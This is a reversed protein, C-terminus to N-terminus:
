KVVTAKYTPLKKSVTQAIKEPTLKAPDYTVVGKKEQYSVQADKVGDLSKLVHKVATACAGCTMGDIHLTTVKTAAAAAASAQSTLCCGPAAGAVFGFGVAAAVIAVVVFVKKM